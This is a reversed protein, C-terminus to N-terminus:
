LVMEPIKKYSKAPSIARCKVNNYSTLCTHLLIIIVDFGISYYKKFITALKMLM